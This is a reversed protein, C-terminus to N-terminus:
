SSMNLTVPKAMVIELIYISEGTVNRAGNIFM